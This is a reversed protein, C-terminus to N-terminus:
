PTGSREDSFWRKELCARLRLRARHLLVWLNTASIGLAKCVGDGPVGDIVRLVFASRAQPPLDDLCREVVTWFDGDESLKGPDPMWEGPRRRWSGGEDFLADIAQDSENPEHRHLQRWHDAIKHRLIGILWTRVAAEDRFRSQDRLAALLAEQVVDEVAAQDRVRSRAYRCLVQWHQDLLLDARSHRSQGIGEDRQRPERTTDV